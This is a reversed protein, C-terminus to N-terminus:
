PLNEAYREDSRYTGHDDAVPTGGGQTSQVLFRGPTVEYQELQTEVDLTKATANAKLTYEPPLRHNRDWIMVRGPM